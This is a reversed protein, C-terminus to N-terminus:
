IFSNWMLDIEFQKRSKVSATSHQHLQITNNILLSRMGLHLIFRFSKNRSDTEITFFFWVSSTPRNQTYPVVQRGRLFFASKLQWQVKRDQQWSTWWHTKIQSFKINQKWTSWRALFHIWLALLLCLFLHVCIHGTVSVLFTFFSISTSFIPHMLIKKAGFDVLVMKM